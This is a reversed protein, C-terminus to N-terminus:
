IKKAHKRPARPAPAVDEEERLRKPPQRARPPMGRASTAAFRFRTPCTRRTAGEGSLGRVRCVSAGRPTHTLSERFNKRFNRYPRSLGFTSSLQPRPELRPSCYQVPSCFKANELNRIFSEMSSLGTDLKKLKEQYENNDSEVHPLLREHLVLDQEILRRLSFIMYDCCVVLFNVMSPDSAEIKLADSFARRVQSLHTRENAVHSEFNITNKSM